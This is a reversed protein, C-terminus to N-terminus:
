NLNITCSKTIDTKSTLSLNLVKNDGLGNVIELSISNEGFSYNLCAFGMITCRRPLGSGPKESQLIGSVKETVPGKVHSFDDYNVEVDANVRGNEWLDCNEFVFSRVDGRGFSTDLVVDKEGSAESANITSSNMSFNIAPTKANSACGIIFVTLIALMLLHLCIKNM